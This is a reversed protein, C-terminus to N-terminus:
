PFDRLDDDCFVGFSLLCTSMLSVLLTMTMMTMMMTDVVM